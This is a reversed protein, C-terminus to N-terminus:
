RYLSRYYSAADEDRGRRVEMRLHDPAGAFGFAKVAEAYGSQIEGASAPTGAPATLDNLWVARPAMAAVLDPLDYDELAGPVINEFVQRHIRNNVVADYSLLMNELGISRLRRDLAAAYLLPVAAAQRGLGGIRQPDVEPRGALVDLGRLIDRARMGALTRGMLIATMGDEYDGFYRVFDSANVELRSRTEGMGRLDVSLVVFGGRALQEQDAASASKGRGDAVLVAPKRAAGGEPLYLLAPILIGPESEYTLKEIRYGSKHITGYPTVQAPGSPRELGSRQEAARRIRQQYAALEAGSAPKPRAERLQLARKQNMTFVTEGGLSTAVQGTPTCDLTQATEPTIEQEPAHDEAGKLWRGFWNYGALRRPQSYGHGDDAEVMDLKEAAGLVNWVRRAERFTERAGDIPFFDRIATLMLFPKPAFAYLFDPYDLGDRLWNPFVQEADKPGITELMRHWSTIYCSPAAVRIRDDLASLYTTHTGGGSNGTAAVRTPDVEKRSLLYDLARIGDWITYRAVHQGTLLCQIGLETHETTSARLKSDRLDEDYIQIREGQGLPDWTLAVYGKRALTALNQQWIPYAKAGPEHGLPYLIAPYPPQGNKPLYLNATVYFHPQSEFIIKEIRYGDRDLTGTVRANLPTREPLGGLARLMHERVYARRRAVAEANSVDLSGKRVEVLKQARAQMYAPLMDQVHEYESLGHLFDLNDPSSRQASLVGAALFVLLIRYHM